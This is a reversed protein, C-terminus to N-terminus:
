DSHSTKRTKPKDRKQTGEDTSAPMPTNTNAGRDALKGAAIDAVIDPLSTSAANATYFVGGVQIEGLAAETFLAKAM